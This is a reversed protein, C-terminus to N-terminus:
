DGQTYVRAIAVVGHIPGWSGERDATKKHHVTIGKNNHETTGGGNPLCCFHM